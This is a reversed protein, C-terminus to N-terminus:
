NDKRKKADQIQDNFLGNLNSKLTDDMINVLKSRQHEIERYVEAIMDVNPLHKQFVLWNKMFHDMAEKSSLWLKVGKIVWNLAALAPKKTGGSVLRELIVM